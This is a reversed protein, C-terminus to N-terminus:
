YYKARKGHAGVLFWSFSGHGVKVPEHLCVVDPAGDRVLHVGADCAVHARQEDPEGAGAAQGDGPVHAVGGRGQGGRQGLARCRRARVHEVRSKPGGVVGVVDGAGEVDRGGHDGRAVIGGGVVADLQAPGPGGRDALVGAEGVDAGPEGGAVDGGRGRHWADDRALVQARIVHAVQAGQHGQLSDPRQLHDRVGAVAHGPVHDGAHQGPQRDLQDRQVELQVAGEGVVLGVRELRLVQEVALGLDALGPASMPSAKSPSASRQKKMSSRPSGTGGDAITPRTAARSSARWGPEAM